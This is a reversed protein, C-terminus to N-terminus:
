RQMATVCRCGACWAGDDDYAGEGDLGVGVRGGSAWGWDRSGSVKVGGM